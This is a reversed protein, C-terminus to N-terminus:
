DVLKLIRVVPGSSHAVKVKSHSSLQMKWASVSAVNRM